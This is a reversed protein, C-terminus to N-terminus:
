VNHFVSDLSQTDWRLDQSEEQSEANHHTLSVALAETEKGIISFYCDGSWMIKIVLHYFRSYEQCM